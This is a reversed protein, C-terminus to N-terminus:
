HVQARRLQQRIRHCLSFHRSFFLYVVAGYFASLYARM